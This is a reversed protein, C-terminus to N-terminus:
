RLLDRAAEIAANGIIGAAPRSIPIPGDAVAAYWTTPGCTPCAVPEAHFRRDSPNDYEAACQPCMTFGRMTTHGRDYPLGEIITFRPGCDTCNVFPYRHRRDHPDALEALCAPCPAIDPPVHATRQGGVASALIAFTTAGPQLPVDRVDIRGVSSLPPASSALGDLFAAVAAAKGQVELVVGAADNEVWGALGLRTARRWVFPRFAVGQVGGSLTVRRRITGANDNM